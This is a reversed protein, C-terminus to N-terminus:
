RCRFHMFYSVYKVPKHLGIRRIRDLAQQEVVPNWLTDMIFIHSAVKIDLAIGGDKLSMLLIRCDSDKTFKDVAGDRATNSMSGVLQVCNFGLLLADLKTSTKFENLQNKEWISSSSFWAMKEKSEVFDILCAKCFVHRCSTVTKTPLALDVVKEEKTR